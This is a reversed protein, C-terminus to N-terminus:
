LKLISLLELLSILFFLIQSLFIYKHQNREFFDQFFFQAANSFFFTEKKEEVVFRAVLHYLMASALSSKGAVATLRGPKVMAALASIQKTTFLRGGDAREDEVAAGKQFYKM